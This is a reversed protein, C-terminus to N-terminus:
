ITMFVSSYMTMSTRSCFECSSSQCDIIRHGPRKSGSIKRLQYLLSFQCSQSFVNRFYPCHSMEPNPIHICTKAMQGCPSWARSSNRVWRLECCGAMWNVISFSSSWFIANRSTCTYLFPSLAVVETNRFFVCVLYLWYM